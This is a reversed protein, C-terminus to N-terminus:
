IVRRLQAPCYNGSEEIIKYFENFANGKSIIESFSNFTIDNTRDKILNNKLATCPFLHHDPTIAFKSFGAKCGRDTNCLGLFHGGIDIKDNYKEKLNSLINSLKVENPAIDDFNYMARGHNVLRLFSIKNVGEEILNYTMDDLIDINLSTPVVHVKLIFGFSKAIKRSKKNLKFSGKCNTFFDHKEELINHLSFVLTNIGLSKIDNLSERQIHQYDNNVKTVGCTYIEIDNAYNKSVNILKELYPHQFPEGGSIELKDIKSPLTKFFMELKEIDIYRNCHPSSMTSCHKCELPCNDVIELTLNEIRDMEM